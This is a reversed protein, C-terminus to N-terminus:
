RIPLTLTTHAPDTTSMSLRAGADDSTSGSSTGKRAPTHADFSTIKRTPTQAWAHNSSATTTTDVCLVRTDVHQTGTPAAPRPGAAALMCTAAGEDALLATVGRVM